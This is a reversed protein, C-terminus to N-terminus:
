SMALLCYQLNASTDVRAVIAIDGWYIAAAPSGNKGDAFPVFVVPAQWAGPAAAATYLMTGFNNIFASMVGGQSVTCPPLNSSSGNLTTFDFPIEFDPVENPTSTAITDNGELTTWGLTIANTDPDVSALPGVLSHTNLPQQQVIVSQAPGWGSFNSSYVFKSAADERTFAFFLVEFPANDVTPAVLSLGGLIGGPTPVTGDLQWPTEFNPDVSAVIIGSGDDTQYAAILRNSIPDFALAPGTAPMALGFGAGDPGEGSLQFLKPQFPIQLDNTMSLYIVGEVDQYILYANGGGAALAVPGIVDIDVQQVQASPALLRPGRLAYTPADSRRALFTENGAIEPRHQALKKRFDESFAAPEPMNIAGLPPFIGLNFPDRIANAYDRLTRCSSRASVTDSVETALDALEAGIMIPALQLLNLYAPNYRPAAGLEVINNYGLQGGAAVATGSAVIAAWLPSQNCLVGPGARLAVLNNYLNVCNDYHPRPNFNPM